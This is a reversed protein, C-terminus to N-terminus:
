TLTQILQYIWPHLFNLQGLYTTLDKLTKTRHPSCPSPKSASYLTLVDAKLLAGSLAGVVAPEGTVNIVPNAKTDDEIIAICVTIEQLLDDTCQTAHFLPDLHDHTEAIKLMRKLTKHIEKNRILTEAYFSSDEQKFLREFSSLLVEKLSSSLDGNNYIKDLLYKVFDGSWWFNDAAYEFIVEFCVSCNLDDFQITRGPWQLKSVFRAAMKRISSDVDELLTVTSDILCVASSAMQSRPLTQIFQLLNNGCIVLGQASALRFNENQHSRAAEMIKLCWDSMAIRLPDSQYTDTCAVIKRMWIAKAPLLAARISAKNSFAQELRTFETHTLPCNSEAPNRLGFETIVSLSTLVLPTASEESVVSWIVDQLAQSLSDFLRQNINSLKLLCNLCVMKIEPSSTLYKESCVSLDHLNTSMMVFTMQVLEEIFADQGIKQTFDELCLNCSNILSSLDAFLEESLHDNLSLLLVRLVQTYKASVLLNLPCEMIWRRQLVVAMFHETDDESFTRSKALKELCLLVGHLHNHSTVEQWCLPITLVLNKMTDLVSDNPVLACYAKASLERLTYVPSQIATLMGKRLESEFRSSNQKLDAPGMNALLTLIPFLSPHLKEISNIDCLAEDLKHLIFPPLEPYYSDFEKLTIMNQNYESKSKQGFMRNVMTSFLQTTANRVAWSPSEFGEIILIITRSIYSMLRAVLGADGFLVKLINLAHVQSVDQTQDAHTPLPMSAVKLLSTIAHHLLKQQHVHKEALTVIQVIIPLGASRRTVSSSMMNSELSTLVEALLSAPIISLRKDTASLLTTCYKFLGNRCGEIAGRHRCHILVRVFAQGVAEIDDVDLVSETQKDTVAQSVIEGLCTCSTKLNVWCWSLLFQFEPSLAPSEEHDESSLIELATGIEAFSPCLEGSKMGGTLVSLMMDIIQMNTSLIENIMEKWNPHQRSIVTSAEKLCMTVAQMLGHIPYQKAALNPDGRARKLHESIEQSLLKIFKVSAHKTDKNGQTFSLHNEKDDCRTFVTGQRNAYKVILLECILAGSQSEHPRPSNCLTFAKTLLHNALTDESTIALPFDAKIPWFYYKMLIHTALEQVENAGDLVCYLLYCMNCTSFFNWLEKTQAYETLVHVSEDLHGKKRRDTPCYILSEYIVLLLDLCAKRRQYNVGPVTNEILLNHLWQVLDLSLDVRDEMVKKKLNAVCSERIRTILLRVNTALQQRFPASDVKLCHRLANRLLDAETESVSESTKVTACLVGIAEAMVVENESYIAARLMSINLSLFSVSQISRIIRTVVTWALLSRTKRCLCSSSTFVSHLEETMLEGCGPLLRVTCTVWYESIKRSLVINESLLGVLVTDMWLSKWKLMLKEEEDSNRLQNLFTKYIDSAVPALSTSGMCLLLHEKIQPHSILIKESDEYRLLVCLLKYKGRVYWPIDLLRTLLTGAFEANDCIGSKVQLNWIKLLHSFTECTYHTVGDVPNDLNLWVIKLTKNLIASDKNMVYKSCPHLKSNSVTRLLSKFWDCLLQFAQYHIDLPGDCFKCVILFLHFLLSDNEKTPIFNDGRSGINEQYLLIAESGCVVQGRVFALRGFLNQVSDETATSQYDLNLHGFSMKWGNGQTLAGHINWFTRVSMAPSPATNLLMSVATGALLQMDLGFCSESLIVLLMWVITKLSSKNIKSTSSLTKTWITDKVAAGFRQFLQLCIKVIITLNTSVEPTIEDFPVSLLTDIKHKLFDCLAPVNSGLITSTLPQEMLSSLQVLQRTSAGDSLLRQIVSELDKKVVLLLPAPLCLLVQLTVHFM